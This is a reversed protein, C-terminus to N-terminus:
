KVLAKMAEVGVQLIAPNRTRRLCAKMTEVGGLERLAQRARTGAPEPACSLNRLCVLGRHVVEEEEGESCLGLLIEPGRKIDLIANTSAGPEQTLM